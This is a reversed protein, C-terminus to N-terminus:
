TRLLTYRAPDCLALTAITCHAETDFALQNACPQTCEIRNNLFLQISLAYVLADIAQTNTITHFNFELTHTNHM